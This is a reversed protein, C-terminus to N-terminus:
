YRRINISRDPVRRDINISLRYKIVPLSVVHLHHWFSYKVKPDLSKLPKKHRRYDRYLWAITGLIFLGVPIAVYTLIGTEALRAVGTAPPPSVVYTVYAAATQESLSDIKQLAKVEITHSGESVTPITYSWKGDKDSRLRAYEGDKTNIAIDVNPTATGSLTVDSQIDFVTGSMPREIVIKPLAHLKQLPMFALCLLLVAGWFLSLRKM